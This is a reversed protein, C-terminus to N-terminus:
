SGGEEFRCSRQVPLPRIGELRRPQVESLGTAGSTLFTDGRSQLTVGYCGRASVVRYTRLRHRPGQDDASGALDPAGRGTAQERDTPLDVQRTPIGRVHRRLDGGGSPLEDHGVAVIRLLQEDREAVAGVQEDVADTVRGGGRSLEQRENAVGAGRHHDRALGDVDVGEPAM